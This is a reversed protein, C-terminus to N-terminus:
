IIRLSISPVKRVGDPMNVKIEEISFKQGRRMNGLLGQAQANLRNGQCIAEKINGNEVTVVKFSDRICM